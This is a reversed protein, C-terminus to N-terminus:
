EHDAEQEAIAGVGNGSAAAVESKVDQWARRVYVMLVYLHSGMWRVFGERWSPNRTMTKSLLEGLRPNVAARGPDARVHDLALSVFRSVDGDDCKVAATSIATAIRDWLTLRDLSSGFLECLCLGLEVASEEYEVSPADPFEGADPDCLGALTRRFEDADFSPPPEPLAATPPASPM